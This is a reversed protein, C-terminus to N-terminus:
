ILILNFDCYVLTFELTCVNQHAFKYSTYNLFNVIHELITLISTVIKINKQPVNVGNTYVM